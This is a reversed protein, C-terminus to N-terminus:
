YKSAARGRQLEEVVQFTEVRKITKLSLGEKELAERLGKISDASKAFIVEKGGQTFVARFKIKM